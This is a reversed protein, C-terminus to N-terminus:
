AGVVLRNRGAAKAALVAASAKEVLAVPDAIGEALEAVGV